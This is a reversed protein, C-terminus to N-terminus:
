QDPWPLVMDKKVFFAKAALKALPADSLSDSYFYQIKGEPFREAFRRIKEKGKCNRGHIKGSMSDVQTAIPPEIGLRMCIPHLLFEPSASVVVDNKLKIELYWSKIKGHRAKWFSVAFEESDGLAPM